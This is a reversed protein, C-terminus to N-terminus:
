AGELFTLLWTTQSIRLRRGLQGSHFRTGAITHSGPPTPLTSDMFAEDKASVSNTEAVVDGRLYWQCVGAVLDIEQSIMIARLTLILKKAIGKKKAYINSIHLSLVTFCKQGSLPSRRFTARSLVGQLVWGREGEM